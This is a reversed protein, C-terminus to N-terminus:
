SQKIQLSLGLNGVLDIEVNFNTSLLDSSNDHSQVNTLISQRTPETLSNRLSHLIETSKASSLLSNSLRSLRKVVLAGDEMTNDGVEHDLSSVESGSVSSSTLGNITLLKVVLVELQLM